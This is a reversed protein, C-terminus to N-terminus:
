PPNINKNQLIVGLETTPSILSPLSSPSTVFLALAFIHLTYRAAHQHDLSSIAPAFMSCLGHGM